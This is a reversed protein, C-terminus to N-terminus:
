MIEFGYSELHLFTFDTGAVNSDTDCTVVSTAHYISVLIQMDGLTIVQGNKTM